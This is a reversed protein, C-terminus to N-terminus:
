ANNAQGGIRIATERAREGRTLLGDREEALLELRHKALMTYQKFMHHQRVSLDTCTTFCSRVFGRRTCVM